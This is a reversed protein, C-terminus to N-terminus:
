YRGSECNGHNLKTSVGDPSLIIVKNGRCEYTFMFQGLCWRKAAACNFVTVLFKLPFYIIMYGWLPDLLYCLIFM